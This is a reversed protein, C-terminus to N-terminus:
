LEGKMVVGAFGLGVAPALVVRESKQSPETLVLILGTGAFAIGAFMTITSGLALGQARDHADSADDYTPGSCGPETTCQEDISSAEAFAIGGTIASVILSAAGVGGIAFGAIAQPGFGEQKAPPPPPQIGRRTPGAQAPKLQILVRVTKGELMESELELREYGTATAIFRSRGPDTTLEKDLTTFPAGDRTIVLDIPANPASVVIKPLRPELRAISENIFQDAQPSLVEGAAGRNLVRAGQFGQWATAIKGARDDCRAINIAAGVSPDLGMSESFKPCATQWDDKKLLEIGERFLAEAKAPDREVAGATSVLVTSAVLAVAISRLARTM